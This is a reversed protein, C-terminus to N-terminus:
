RSASGARGGLSDARQREIAQERKKAEKQNNYSLILATAVVGALLGWEDGYEMGCLVAIVFLGLQIFLDLAGRIIKKFM